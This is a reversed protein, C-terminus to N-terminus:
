KVIDALAADITPFKYNLGLALPRRPLVRQGTAIVDAVEGLALRLAFRPTPMFAPRHLARGLAQGFERNTVPNPATGNLPGNAQANDLALLLLSGMDEHHIWSMYQKGNGVPGGAGLKFPILLKALAGGAEDLVIGVRVLACRVGSAEVGRAEKEWEICLQALFDAGPRSEETLEEDGSPGYIGIASASVLVKASGDARRPAAALAQVVHRTGLVRSDILIQKFAPNWRRAFVNEGALHIVGDCSAVHQMWDGAQTPDGSIATVAAGFQAHAADPRRTLLVVEDGRAHLRQVLRTGVLGTGGTVFIRM